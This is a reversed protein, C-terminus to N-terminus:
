TASRSIASSTTSDVQIATIKRLSASTTAAAGCGLVAAGATAFEHLVVFTAVATDDNRANESTGVLGSDVDGGATISCNPRHQTTDNNNIELKGIIMYKGAPLSLTLLNPVAATITMSLLVSM